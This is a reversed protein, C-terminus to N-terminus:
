FKLFENQFFVSECVILSLICVKTRCEIDAGHVLLMKVVTVRGNQCSFHLPTYNEQTSSLVRKYVRM